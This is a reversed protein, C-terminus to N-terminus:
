ASFKPKAILTDELVLFDLDSVVFTRLADMPSNVIPEYEQNFSTNTVVGAGTDYHVADLLDAFPHDPNDVVLPRVSNDAHVIGSLAGGVSSCSLWRAEVMFDLGDGGIGAEAAVASNM